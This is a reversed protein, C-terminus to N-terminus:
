HGCVSGAIDTPTQSRDGDPPCSGTPAPVGRDCCQGVKERGHGRVRKVLKDKLVRVSTVYCMSM